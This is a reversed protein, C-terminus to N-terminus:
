HHQSNLFEEASIVGDEDRDDESLVHDVLETAIDLISKQEEEGAEDHEALEVHTEKAWEMFAHLLETGDLYGDADLDHLVFWHLLLELEDHEESDYNASYKQEEMLAEVKTEQSPNLKQQKLEEELHHNHQNPVSHAGHEKLPAPFFEEHLVVPGSVTAMKILGAHDAQSASAVHHEVEPFYHSYHHSRQIVFGFSTPAMVAYLTFGIILNFQKM